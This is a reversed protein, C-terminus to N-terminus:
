WTKFLIKVLYKRKKLDNNCKYIGSNQRIFALRIIYPQLNTTCTTYEQLDKDTIYHLQYM